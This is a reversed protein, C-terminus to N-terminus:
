PSVERVKWKMLLAGVFRIAASSAWGIFGLTVMAIVIIPYQVMVFSNWILYGLGYEGALMEGAVLSFWAVGMSIQLGTFIYPLAGPVVVRFFIHRPKSGLCRAARFYVEDISEVGLLTNLTTAFFAALFTLYVIAAERAPWMLIALPVWALMPIPRLTEDIPFTYDRFVKKWGMFLGLPVGLLTALGFAEFVRMMSKIIHLYYESVYISIGYSPDESLWERIVAVPGPLKEFRPLKFLETTMYWVALFLLLGAVMLYPRPSKIWQKLRFAMAEFNTIEALVADGKPKASPIQM